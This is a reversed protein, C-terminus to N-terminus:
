IDVPGLRTRLYGEVRDVFEDPLKGSARLEAIERDIFASRLDEPVELARNTMKEVLHIVKDAFTERDMTAEKEAARVLIYRSKRLGDNYRFEGSGIGQVDKGLPWDTKLPPVPRNEMSVPPLGDGIVHV